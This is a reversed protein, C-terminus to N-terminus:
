ICVCRVHFGKGSKRKDWETRKNRSFTRLLEENIRHKRVTGM